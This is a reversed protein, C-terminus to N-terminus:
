SERCNGAMPTSPVQTPHSAARAPALPHSTISPSAAVEALGFVVDMGARGIVKAGAVTCIFEKVSSAAFDEPRFNEYKGRILRAAATGTLGAAGAEDLAKRLLSAIEDKTM